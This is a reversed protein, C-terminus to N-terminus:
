TIFKRLRIEDRIPIKGIGPLVRGHKRSIANPVAEYIQFDNLQYFALALLDDNSTSVLLKEKFLKRARDEVARLLAKGIGVGQYKPLVGLAVILIDKKNLEFFSIFGVIKGQVIALFAPLDKVKFKIGFIEQVEEGWFQKVLEGIIESDEAKSERTSYKVPERGKVCKVCVVSLRIHSTCVTRGCISCSYAGNENCIFCSM